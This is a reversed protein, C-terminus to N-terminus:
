YSENSDGGSSASFGGMAGPVLRWRSGQMTRSASPTSTVVTVSTRPATVAQETAVALRQNTVALYSVGAVMILFAIGLAASLFLMPTSLPQKWWPQQPTPSIVGMLIPATASPAPLQPSPAVQGSAQGGFGQRLRPWKAVDKLELFAASTANVRYFRMNGEEVASLMGTHELRLLERRLPSISLSLQKALGRLYFPEQPHTLIHELLTRRIRSSVLSELM